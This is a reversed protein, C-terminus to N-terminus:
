HLDFTYDKFTADKDIGGHAGIYMSVLTLPIYAYIESGEGDEHEKWALPVEESPFGVEVKIYPGANDRPSCYHHRSAQVSLTTGDVCIIRPMSPLMVIGTEIGGVCILPRKELMDSLSMAKFEEISLEKGIPWIAHQRKETM